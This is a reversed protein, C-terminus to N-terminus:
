TAIVAHVPATASYTHCGELLCWTSKTYGMDPYSGVLVIGVTYTNNKYLSKVPQNHDQTPLQGLSLLGPLWYNPKVKMM